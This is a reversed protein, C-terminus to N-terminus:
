WRMLNADEIKVSKRLRYFAIIMALGIAAEAAALMIVFIAFVQGIPSLVEVQSTFAARSLEVGWMRNFAVFNINVANLMLEVSMLLSIANKRTIMGFLGISFLLSAVAFYHHVTVTGVMNLVRTLEDFGAVLVPM